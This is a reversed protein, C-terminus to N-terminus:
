RPPRHWIAWPPREYQFYKASLIEHRYAVAEDPHRPGADGVALRSYLYDRGFDEGRGEWQLVHIYEDSLLSTSNM